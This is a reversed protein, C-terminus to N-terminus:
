INKALKQIENEILTKWICYGDDNLHLGDAAFFLPDAKARGGFDSEKFEDTSNCFITLCDLYTVNSKGNCRRRLGKNLKVYQRRSKLDDNLWPEFKPGLVLIHRYSSVKELFKDFSLLTHELEIGNGIDNEGACFVLIENPFTAPVIKSLVMQMTAGPHGTAKLGSSLPCQPYLSPPWRSIDSDGLMTIHM